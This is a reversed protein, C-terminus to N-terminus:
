NWPASGMELLQWNTAVCPKGLMKHFPKGSTGMRIMWFIWGLVINKTVNELLSVKKHHTTLGVTLM